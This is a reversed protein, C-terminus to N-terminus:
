AHRRIRSGRPGWVRQGRHRWRPDPSEVQYGKLIQESLVALLLNERHKFIPTYNICLRVITELTCCLPEVTVQIILDEGGSSRDVCSHLHPLIM